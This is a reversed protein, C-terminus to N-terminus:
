EGVSVEDVDAEVVPNFDPLDIDISGQQIRGWNEPFDINLRIGIEDWGLRPKKAIRVQRDARIVLVFQQKSMHTGRDPRAM